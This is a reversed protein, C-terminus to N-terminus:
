QRQRPRYRFRSRFYRVVDWKVTDVPNSESKSGRRATPEGLRFGIGIGVGVGIILTLVSLQTDLPLKKAQTAPM